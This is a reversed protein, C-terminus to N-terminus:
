LEEDRFKQLKNILEDILDSSIRFGVRTPGTYKPSTVFHRIDVRKKGKFMSLQIRMELRDNIIIREM